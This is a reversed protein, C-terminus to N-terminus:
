GARRACAMYADGFGRASDTDTFAMRGEVAIIKTLLSLAEAHSAVGLPELDRLTYDARDACLRPQPQELLPYRREDLVAALDFGYRDCIAPIETQRVYNAKEDDHFDQALARDFMYDIVHSLATHSVDHLLAAVQEEISAGLRRVLLMAGVSHEFRTTRPSIGLVAVIGGMTVGRLRQMPASEVLEILIPEKVVVTDYLKDKIIM